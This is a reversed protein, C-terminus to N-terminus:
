YQLLPSFKIWILNQTVKTTRRLLYISRFDIKEELINLSENLKLGCQKFKVSYSASYDSCSIIM